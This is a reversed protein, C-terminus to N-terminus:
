SVEMNGPSRRVLEMYNINSAALPSAVRVNEATTSQPLLLQLGRPGQAVASASHEKLKSQAEQKGCLWMLLCQFLCRILARCCLPSPLCISVKLELRLVKLRETILNWRELPVPSVWVPSSCAESPTNLVSAAPTFFQSAAASPSAKAAIPTSMQLITSDQVTKAGAILAFRIM